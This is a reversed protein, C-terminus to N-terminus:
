KYFQDLQCDVQTHRRQMSTIFLLKFALGRGFEEFLSTELCTINLM